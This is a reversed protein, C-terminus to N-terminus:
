NFFFLLRLEKFSKKILETPNLSKGLEKENVLLTSYNGNKELPEKKLYLPRYPFKAIMKIIEDM